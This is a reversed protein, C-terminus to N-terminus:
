RDGLSAAATDSAAPDPARVRWAAVAADAAQVDAASLQSKIQAVRSAAERDGGRAALSLWQYALKLDRPVGRGNQHLVALNFQSDTLIRAAAEAFWKAAGAYDTRGGNVSLVALNHM